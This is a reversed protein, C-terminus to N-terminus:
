PFQRYTELKLPVNYNHILPEWTTKNFFSFIDSNKYFLHILCRQEKLAKLIPLKQTFSYKLLVHIM